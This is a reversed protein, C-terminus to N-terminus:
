RKLTKSPLKVANIWFDNLLQLLKVFEEFNAPKKLYCNANLDYADTIDVDAESTTLIIIPIRKLKVDAKVEQLVKRGDIKPLNLDLLVLDIDSAKVYPVQKRLIKLAEEGDQAVQISIMLNEDLIEKVLDSDAKNDEVLLIQINHESQQM